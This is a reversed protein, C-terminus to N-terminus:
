FGQNDVECLVADAYNFDVDEVELPVPLEFTREPRDVPLRVVAWRESGFGLRVPVMMKFSEGQPLEQRVRIMLKHKEGAPVSKWAWEYRPVTTGHVWQDFFWRMDAGTHKEVVRRFDATAANKGHYQKVFDRMMNHFAEDSGTKFDHMLMRLMHLVWGGKRYVLLTYDIPSESSRLRLGLSIPGAETGQSFREVGPPYGFYSM